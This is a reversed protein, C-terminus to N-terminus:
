GPWHLGLAKSLFVAMQRRTLPADPCFNGGGCGATIGSAALAEVFAFAPDAAPVDNFTATAPGPSVQRQWRIEVAKFGHVCGLQNSNVIVSLQGADIDFAVDNLVTFDFTVDASAYGYEPAASSSVSVVEGDAPAGSGGASPNGGRFRYLRAVVEFPVSTDLYFFGLSVVKAGTPLTVPAWLDSGSGNRCVYGSGDYGWGGDFNFSRFASAPIQLIECCETGGQGRVPAAVGLAVGLGLLAVLARRRM